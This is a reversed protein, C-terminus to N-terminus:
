ADAEIEVVADSEPSPGSSAESTSSDVKADAESEVAADSAPSPELAASEPSDESSMSVPQNLGPQKLWSVFLLNQKIWCPKPYYLFFVVFLLVRAFSLVKM